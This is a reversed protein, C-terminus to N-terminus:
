DIVGFRNRSISKVYNRRNSKGEEVQSLWNTKNSTRNRYNIEWQDKDTERMWNRKISKEKGIKEVKKTSLNKFEARLIWDIANLPFSMFCKYVTAM